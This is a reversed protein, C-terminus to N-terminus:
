SAALQDLFWVVRGAPRIRGAPYQSPQGDPEARLAAIIERKNAGTVLFFTNRGCNLVAPTFTLRNPPEAPAVVAAVWAKKEDLVPSGPFLSATHGEVGLGLLQVDFEPPAAGFFRHLEADYEAAAKEPPAIGTPVPHVNAAPIPARSLLAEKTMRYNSLPDDPPVYREDSWFLHVRDWSTRSRYKEDSAWLSYMKAPTHGGSLALAFRGRLAIASKMARMLEDMAARSLSDVDPYIQTDMHM